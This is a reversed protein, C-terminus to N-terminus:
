VFPFFERALSGIYISPRESSRSLGGQGTRFSALHKSISERHRRLHPLKQAHVADEGILDRLFRVDSRDPKAGHQLLFCFSDVWAKKEDSREALQVHGSSLRSLVLELISRRKWDAQVILPNPHAGNELLSSVMEPNPPLSSLLADLLLPWAVEPAPDYVTFYRTPGFKAWQKNLPKGLRGAQRPFKEGRRCRIGKIDEPVPPTRFSLSRVVCGQGRQIKHEVYETVGLLM